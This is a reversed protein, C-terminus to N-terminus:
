SIHNDYIQMTFIINKRELSVSFKVYIVKNATFFINHRKQHLCNHYHFVYFSKKTRTSNLTQSIYLLYPLTRTYSHTRKTPAKMRCTTRESTNQLKSHLAIYILWLSSEFVLKKEQKQIHSHM